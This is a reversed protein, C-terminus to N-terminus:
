NRKFDHMIEDENKLSIATSPTHFTGRRAKDAWKRPTNFLFFKCAYQHTLEITMKTKAEKSIKIVDGAILYSNVITVAIIM